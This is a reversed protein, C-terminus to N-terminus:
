ATVVSSINVAIVGEPLLVGDDILRGLFARLHRLTGRRKPRYGKDALWARAASEHAIHVETVFTKVHVFSPVWSPDDVRDLARRLDHVLSTREDGRAKALRQGIEHCRALVMPGARAELERLLTSAEPRMIRRRVSELRGLDRLDVVPVPRDLTESRPLEADIGQIQRAALDANKRQQAAHLVELLRIRWEFRKLRPRLPVATDEADEVFFDLCQQLNM